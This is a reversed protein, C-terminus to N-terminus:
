KKVLKQNSTKKFQINIKKTVQYVLIYNSNISNDEDGHTDKIIILINKIVM